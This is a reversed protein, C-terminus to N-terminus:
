GCLSTVAVFPTVKAEEKEKCKGKVVKGDIEATFDCICYKEDLPFQYIAEIPETEVNKFTQQLTVSTCFDEILASVEVSTLPCAQEKQPPPPSPITPKNPTPPPRYVVRGTPLLFCTLLIQIPNIQSRVELDALAKEWQTL